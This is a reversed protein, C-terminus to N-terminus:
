KPLKENKSLHENVLYYCLLGVSLCIIIVGYPLISNEMSYPLFEQIVLGLGGFGALFIWKLINQQREKHGPRDDLVAKVFNQDTLKADIIKKKLRYKLLQMIAMSTIWTTMIIM